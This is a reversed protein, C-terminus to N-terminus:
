ARPYPKVLYPLVISSLHVINPMVASLWGILPMLSDASKMGWGTIPSGDPQLMMFSSKGDGVNFMSGHGLMFIADLHETAGVGNDHQLELVRKILAEPKVASEYAFLFYPRRTLFREIDTENSCILDGKAFSANLKKFAVAQKFVAEMQGMQLSTKVEGGALIGEIFYTNPEEIKGFRPHSNDIILLDIQHDGGQKDGAYNGHNDIAEGHGVEISRPLHDNLFTRLAQETKNGKNVAHTTVARIVKLEALLKDEMGSFYKPFDVM